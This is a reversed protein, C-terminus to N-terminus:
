PAYDFNNDAQALLPAAADKPSLVPAAVPWHIQLEPDDWRFGRDHPPSYYGTTKYIV